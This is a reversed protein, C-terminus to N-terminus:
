TAISAFSCVFFQANPWDRRVVLRTLTPGTEGFVM